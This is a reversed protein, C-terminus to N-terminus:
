VILPGLVTLAIGVTQPALLTSVILVTSPGMHALVVAVIQISLLLHVINDKFWSVM